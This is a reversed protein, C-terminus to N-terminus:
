SRGGAHSGTNVGAHYTSGPPRRPPSRLVRASASAHAVQPALGRLRSELRAVAEFASGMEPLHHAASAVSPAELARRICVLEGKVIELTRGTEVDSAMSRRAGAISPRLTHAADAYTALAVRWENLLSSALESADSRADGNQLATSLEAALPTLADQMLRTLRVYLAVSTAPHNPGLSRALTVLADLAHDQWAVPVDRGHAISRAVVALHALAHELRTTSLHLVYNEHVLSADCIEAVADDSLTPTERAALLMARMRGLLVLLDRVYAPLRAEDDPGPTPVRNLLLTRLQEHAARLDALELEVAALQATLERVQENASITSAGRDQSGHISEITQSLEATRDLHLADRQRAYEKVTELEFKLSAIIVASSDLSANAESNSRSAPAVPSGPTSARVAGEISSALLQDRETELDRITDRLVRENAVYQALSERLGRNREILTAQAASQNAQLLEAQSDELEAAEGVLVSVESIMSVLDSLEVAAVHENLRDRIAALHSHQRARLVTVDSSAADDRRGGALDALDALERAAFARAQGAPTSLLALPVATVSILGANILAAVIQLLVAGNAELDVAASSAAAPPTLSSGPLASTTCRGRGGLALGGLVRELTGAAADRWLVDGDCGRVLAIRDAVLLIRRTATELEAQLIDREARLTTLDSSDIATSMSHIQATAADLASHLTSVEATLSMVQEHLQLQDDPSSTQTGARERELELRAKTLQAQLEALAAEQLETAGDISENLTDQMKLRLQLKSAVESTQQLETELETIRAQAVALEADAKDSAQAQQLETELEAIQARLEVMEAEHLEAVDDMSENLTDQMKLRLQLKSAVESTQELETELETIRAQAAALEADAEDNMQAQQLETELETIRAQAAAVETDAENSAQAQELETELEAIRAQAAAVETDAENNMQAQQLETELETIRAQAAALEADAEDSTQAQELEIELEAIRAQAAAVETDAEDSAQAQELETELETIRARLEVMEAEHLESVDDMSENLTGQMKLRLQLKSAAQAQELETELEAIRAQAAAVETDAEDNMQAQQLETELETIRSQLEVMEAEHLEAVDDMSENLTDQMKLRLQLKSAVESTQELETELETIRAQAAAIETEHLQLKSELETSRAQAAALDADAENSAQAQQLEIELEAIRAQAAAVEADAEDNMQAQQLETELEAIRAQAAAVETDAENSAQAQQLETELEAIRAQAAALEADAKDSAQAQQLETELEAIQARLEVMEAEHLEAVDDMSENLTDQMKLRLQLKSAVESTQELETELEIIRAQAVAVEADAEDSNQAQELKSELEAIRAQAAAVETDAENSAQAQQLETELETIRVQAAALEADAEDSAQAQQLETELETIRVQAAALEADAEDSTQAQELEIELETIRSQLEVMEAEHLEAVDDMSENLTDQMKLRLQLKSAVESTQELETELEIIRAQAAAIEDDAKDSAQAQQLETELEAIRAQAAALEADAENSAQAELETELEAIRAQAAAVETDAENSAQAQELETELEAIRAQAAALEPDAENSAQAQQLETELGAIRVQAAKNAARAEALEAEMQEDARPRNLETELGAIRVQAAENAARAEALEAEMQEDARPRNLEDELEAIRVQAAKNAARAEALEAEMQEDARPRNLETELEAIRVQAAENAARAEALEAEMQEDARPRNLEDELEAIRVQAAENAARAEALEAEMQEDARPRNLEDELEAIRVQAAKNAARAEALEAEMQEDARPRNLEDELEAIRVQAAENAARVEALEAEMQEDARPRNLEDELEAIRVQAAENAARPRNLEDELEAIEDDFESAANFLATKPAHMVRARKPRHRGIDPLEMVAARLEQETVFTQSAGRGHEQKAKNAREEALEARLRNCMREMEAVEAELGVARDQLAAVVASPMSEQMQALEARLGDCMRESQDVQSELDKIRKLKAVDPADSTRSLAQLKLEKEEIVEQLAAVEAAHQQRAGQLQELLTENQAILEGSLEDAGSADLSVNLYELTAVRAGLEAAEQQLLAVGDLVASPRSDPLELLTAAGAVTDELETQHALLESITEQLRLVLEDNAHLEERVAMGFAGLQELAPLSPDATWKADEPLSENMVERVQHELDDLRLRLSAAALVHTKREARLEDLVAVDVAVEAALQSAADSDRERQAARIQAEADRLEAVGDGEAHSEPDVRPARSKARMRADSRAAARKRITQLRKRTQELESELESCRVKSEQLKARLGRNARTAKNLPVMYSTKVHEVAAEIAALSVLGSGASERYVAGDFTPPTLKSEALRHVIQNDQEILLSVRDHERVFAEAETEIVPEDATHALSAITGSAGAEAENVESMLNLMDALAVELEANRSRFEAAEARAVEASTAAKRAEERAVDLAVILDDAVTTLEAQKAEFAKEQNVVDTHLQGLEVVMEATAARAEGAELLAADRDARLRALEVQSNSASASAWSAEKLKTELMRVQASLQSNIAAYSDREGGLGELVDGLQAELERVQTKLRLKDAALEDRELSLEQFRRRSAAESRHVSDASQLEAELERVRAELQRNIAAFQDIESTLEDVRRAAGQAHASSHSAALEIRSLSASAGADYGEHAALRERLSQIETSAALHATSLEKVQNQLADIMESQLMEIVTTAGASRATETRLSHALSRLTADVADGDADFGRSVINHRTPPLPEGGVVVGDPLIDRWAAPDDFEAHNGHVLLRVLSAALPRMVLPQPQSFANSRLDLVRLSAGCLALQPPLQALKNAAVDLTDLATLAGIEAPLRGLKNFALLLVRLSACAGIHPSLTTLACHSADLRELAPLLSLAPGLDTLPNHSVDLKVLSSFPATRTANALPFDAFCNIALNLERLGAPARADQMAAVLGHPLVRLANAALELKSLGRDFVAAWESADGDPLADLANGTAVLTELPPGDVALLAEGPLEQVKTGSVDLARLYDLQLVAPPLYGLPLHALSLEGSGGEAGAGAARNYAEEWVEEM